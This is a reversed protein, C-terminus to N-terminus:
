PQPAAKKEAAGAQPPVPPQPPPPAKAAPPGDSPVDLAHIIRGFFPMNEKATLLIIQNARDDPLAKSKGKLVQDMGVQDAFGIAADLYAAVYSAKAHHVPFIVTEIKGPGPPLAPVPASVPAPAPAPNAEEAITATGGAITLVVLVCVILARKM